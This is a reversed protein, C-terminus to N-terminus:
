FEDFGPEHLDGDGQFIADKGDIVYTYSQNCSNRIVANIGWVNDPLLGLLARDWAFPNSIVGVIQAKPDRPKAFVLRYAFVHPHDVASNALSGHMAEHEEPSFITGATRYPRVNSLLIDDRIEMIAAMLDKQERGNHINWNIGGYTFPPPSSQWLPFYFPLEEEVEWNGGGANYSIYPNYGVPKLTDLGGRGQMHATKAMEEHHATAWAEWAPRDPGDVFNFMVMRESGGAQIFHKATIEFDPVNYFPWTANGNDGVIAIQDAFGDLAARLATQNSFASDGITRAFQDFQKQYISQCIFPNTLQVRHHLHSSVHICWLTQVKSVATEFIEVRENRLFVYTTATVAIATLLLATTVLVRGRRVHQNEKASQREIEKVEDRETEESTGDGAESILADADEDNDYKNSAEDTFHVTRPTLNTM